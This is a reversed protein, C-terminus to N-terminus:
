RENIYDLYDQREQEELERMERYERSTLGAENIPGPSNDREQLKTKM